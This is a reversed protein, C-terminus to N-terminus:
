DFDFDFLAKKNTNENSTLAAKFNLDTQLGTRQPTGLAKEIDDFEKRLKANQEEALKRRNAIIDDFMENFSAYTKTPQTQKSM